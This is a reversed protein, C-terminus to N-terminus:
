APPDGSPLGVEAGIKVPLSISATGGAAGAGRRQRWSRQFGAAAAANSTKVASLRKPQSSVMIRPRHIKRTTAIAADGGANESVILKSLAAVMRPALQPLSM